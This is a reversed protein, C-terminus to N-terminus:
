VLLLIQVIRLSLWSSLITWLEALLLHSDLLLLLVLGIFHKTIEHFIQSHAQLKHAVDLGLVLHVRQRPIQVLQRQDESKHGQIGQLVEFIVSEHVAEDSRLFLHYQVTGMEDSAQEGNELLVVIGIESLVQHEQCVVELIHHM